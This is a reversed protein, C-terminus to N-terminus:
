LAVGQWKAWRERFKATLEAQRANIIAGQTQQPAFLYNLVLVEPLCLGKYGREIMQLAFDYDPAGIGRGNELTLLDAYRAGLDWVERRYLVAYLSAYHQWFEAEDYVRPTHLGNRMGFYRTSGYVFGAHPAAELAKAMHWLANPEFYDDDGLIIHYRGQARQAASNYAAASGQNSDHRTYFIRRRQTSEFRNIVERADEAGADDCVCVEVNLLWDRQNLASRIARALTHSGNHTAILVSIDPSPM